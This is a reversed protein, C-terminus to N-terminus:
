ETMTENLVVNMESYNRVDYFSQSCKIQLMM